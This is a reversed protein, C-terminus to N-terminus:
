GRMGYEQGDGICISESKSFNNEGSTDELLRSLLPNAKTPDPCKLEMNM